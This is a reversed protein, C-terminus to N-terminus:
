LNILYVNLNTLYLYGWCVNQKDGLRRSSAKLVHRWPTKLVRRWRCCTLMDVHTWCTKLTKFVDQLRRSLCFNNRQLRTSSTKLTDQFGIFTQQTTVIKSPLQEKVKKFDSMYEYPYFRKQKVLDLVNNNFESSLFKFNDKARHHSFYREFCLRILCVQEHRSLNITNLVSFLCAFINKRVGEGVNKVISDLSSSLFQFSDIFSLVSNISFSWINKYHTEYSTKKLNFKGLKQM